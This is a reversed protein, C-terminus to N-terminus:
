ARRISHASALTATANSAYAATEPRIAPVESVAGITNVAKPRSTPESTRPNMSREGSLSETCSSASAVNATTSNASAERM